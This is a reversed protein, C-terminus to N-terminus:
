KGDNINNTKANGYQSPKGNLISFILWIILSIGILGGGIILTWKM